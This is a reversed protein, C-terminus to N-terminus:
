RNLYTMFRKLYARTKKDRKVTYNRKEMEVGAFTWHEITGKKFYVWTIVGGEGRGFMSINKSFIDKILLKDTDKAKETFDVKIKNEYNDLTLVRSLTAVHEKERFIEMQEMSVLEGAM